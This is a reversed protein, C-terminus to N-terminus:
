CLNVSDYYIGVLEYIFLFLIQIIKLATLIKKAQSFRVVISQVVKKVILLLFEAM